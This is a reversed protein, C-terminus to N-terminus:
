DVTINNKLLLKRVDGITNIEALDELTLPIGLDKQITDALVIGGLSDWGQIDGPGQDDALPYDPTLNFVTRIFSFIEM